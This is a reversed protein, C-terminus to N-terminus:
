MERGCTPCTYTRNKRFLEIKDVVKEDLVASQVYERLLNTVYGALYKETANEDTIYNVCYSSCVRVRYEIMNDNRFIREVVIKPENLEWEDHPVCENNGIAANLKDAIAQWDYETIWVGDDVPSEYQSSNSKAIKRVQEATLKKM